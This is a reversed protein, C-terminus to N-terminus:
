SLRLKKSKAAVIASQVIGICVVAVGAVIALARHAFIGFFLPAFIVVWKMGTLIVRNRAPANM